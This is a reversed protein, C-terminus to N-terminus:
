CPHGGACDSTSAVKQDDAARFFAFNLDRAILVDGFFDGQKQISNASTKPRSAKSCSDFLGVFSQETSAAAGWFLQSPFKLVGAAPAKKPSRSLRCRLLIGLQLRRLKKQAERLDAVCFRRKLRFNLIGPKLRDRGKLRDTSFAWVFVNDVPKRLGTSLNKNRM